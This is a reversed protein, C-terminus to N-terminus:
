KVCVRRELGGVVRAVHLDGSGGGGIRELLEYRVSGHRLLRAGGSGLQSPGVGGLRGGAAWTADGAPPLRHKGASVPRTMVGSVLSGERGVVRSTAARPARM